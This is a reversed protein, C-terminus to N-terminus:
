HRLQALLSRLSADVWAADNLHQQFAQLRKANDSDPIWLKLYGGEAYKEALHEKARAIQCEDDLEPYHDLGFLVTRRMIDDADIFRDAEAVIRGYLTRPEHKSSARHDEAADAITEIQEHSFWQRLKNDTRVIEASKVHHVERGAVLGCDHYAAVAYVMNIDVDYRLGLNLSERIVSRAHGIQHAADFHEYQPIINNEVYAVLDTDVQKSHAVKQFALREDGNLLHIIGCYEFGNQKLVHQMIHNDAHTDVRLNPRVGYAWAFCQRAVDKYDPRSSIRHITGYPCVDDVWKGNYIVKYTVDDTLILAFTAVCTGNPAVMMYSNGREIEATVLERQPYGGTWQTMNGDSRMINKGAEFLEMMVDVDNLTSKRITYNM